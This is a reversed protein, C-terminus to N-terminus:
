RVRMRAYDAKERLGFHSLLGAGSQGFGFDIRIMDVVPIVLRIGFGAGGIMNRTFDSGPDWATALDAFAALQVGIYFGFGKIRFSKPQLAEYRYELTSLFQNNGQRADPNWGRVSNTGGIHFTSYLPVDVGPQGSQLTAFSFFALVHREALAQYRRIDFRASVFDGDGGAWGGNQSIELITQWGRHPNSRLDRGDYEVLAGLAPTLDRNGPSLTKGPQDSSLSLLSFRGGIRWDRLFRIGGRFELEHALETFHYLQNPRDRYNYRLDFWDRKRLRWAPQLAAEVEKLPGFRASATLAVARRLLSPIRIGFGESVGNEGTVNIAPYPVFRLLEQVEVTLIVQDGSPLPTFRISSFLGMRDLWRYDDKETDETYKGGVRSALQDLIIDERTHRLGVIRIEQIARGYMDPHLPQRVQARSPIAGACAFALVALLFFKHRRHMIRFIMIHKGDVAYGASGRYPM